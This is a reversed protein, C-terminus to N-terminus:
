AHQTAFHCKDARRPPKKVQVETLATEPKRHGLSTPGNVPVPPGFAHCAHRGNLKLAGPAHRNQVESNLQRQHSNLPRIDQTGNM